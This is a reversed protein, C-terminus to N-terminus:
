NRRSEIAAVFEQLSAEVSRRGIRRAIPAIIPGLLPPFRRSLGLSEVEILLGADRESLRTFTNGRWLYGSDHGAPLLFEDRTGAKKVERIEDLTSLSYMSRPTTRVYVTTSRVDLVASVGGGGGKLRMWARYTDGDHAVLKSAVVPKYVKAYADYDHSVHLARQLTAGHVFTAGVWHHVLGGPVEIIGADRGPSATVVGPPPPNSRDLRARAVFDTIVTELYSEYAQKTRDELDIAVVITSFLVAVLAVVLPRTPSAAADTL